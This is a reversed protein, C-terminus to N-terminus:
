ILHAPMLTKWIKYNSVGTFKRIGVVVTEGNGQQYYYCKKTYYVSGNFAVQTKESTDEALKKKNNEDVEFQLARTSFGRIKMMLPDEELNQEMQRREEATLNYGDPDADEAAEKKKKREEVIDEFVYDGSNDNFDCFNEWGEWTFTSPSDLSELYTCVVELLMQVDACVDDLQRQQLLDKKDVLKAFDTIGHRHLLTAQDREPIKDMLEKFTQDNTM